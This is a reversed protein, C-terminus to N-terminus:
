VEIKIWSSYPASVGFSEELSKGLFLYIATHIVGAHTMILINERDSNLIKTKFFQEVRKIFGDFDEGGLVSIWQEFSEYKTNKLKCIEEYNLGECEGFSKERLSEDFIVQKKDFYQVSQRCRKLDSSYVIDFEINKLNDALKKAEKQGKKSIDIDIQGNYCGKYKEEVEAHRALYINM